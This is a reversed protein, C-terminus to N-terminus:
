GDGIVRELPTRRIEDFQLVQKNDLQAPAAKRRRSRSQRHRKKAANAEKGNDLGLTTLSQGDIGNPRNLLHPLLHFWQLYGTVFFGFWLLVYFSVPMDFPALLYVVCGVALLYLLSMPLSLFVMGVMMDRTIQGTWSHLNDFPILLLPFIFCSISALVWALKLFTKGDVGM